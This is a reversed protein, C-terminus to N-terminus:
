LKYEFEYMVNGYQIFKCKSINHELQWDRGWECSEFLDEQLEEQDNPTEVASFIKADDAFMKCFKKLQDPKDNIYMIFLVPDLVFGQPVRSTVEKWESSKGDLM